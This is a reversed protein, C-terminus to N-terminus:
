PDIQAGLRRNALDMKLQMKLRRKNTTRGQMAQGGLFIPLISYCRKAPLFCSMLCGLFTDDDCELRWLFTERRRKCQSTGGFQARSAFSEEPAHFHVDRETGIIFNIERYPWSQHHRFCPDVPKKLNSICKMLIGHLFLLVKKLRM